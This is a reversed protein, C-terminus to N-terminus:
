GKRTLLVAQRMGAGRVGYESYLDEDQPRERHADAARILFGHVNKILLQNVAIDQKVARVKEALGEYQKLILDAQQSQVRRLIETLTRPTEPLQYAVGLGQVLADLEEKLGALCELIGVRVQNISVFEHLAMCKIAEREQVMNRALLDCQHSERSLIHSLQDLSTSTNLMLLRGM